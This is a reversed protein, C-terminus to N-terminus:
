AADLLHGGMATGIDGREAKHRPWTGRIAGDYLVTVRDSLQLVEDLDESILIIGAGAERLDLLRDHVSRAAAIDLGRTPQAVIFVVPQAMVERGILIKQQNGGSLSRVATATGPTRVDYDRILREARERALRRSIWMGKALPRERYDRLLMNDTMDLQPVLGMGLRDEPVFRLGARLRSLAHARTVDKGNLWIKGHQLPRIGAVCEALEVQGNGAVGAIGLIEGGRVDLTVGKLGSAGRDAMAQADQVKLVVEGFKGGSIPRLAPMAAGVMLSGLEQISAESRGLSAVVRGRRLVTVRDATAAVEHLKHTIFVVYKGADALRRLALYLDAAEGPTLVSTPEDLILLRPKLYLQKLLELKQKEGAALGAPTADLDLKFPTTELFAQLAAREKKWDIFSPTRGGALLLNEAVNMGPALTFHQYVMGIGLARAIVPTAVDHERGDIMIAGGEPRQSGAVCKVLTSKGAGNEGLLAHVSGAAVTMSVSDMATFSGFRKTLEVTELTLAGTAAPKPDLPATM